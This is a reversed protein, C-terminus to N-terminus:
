RRIYRFLAYFTIIIGLIVIALVLYFLLDSASIGSTKQTTSTTTDDTLSIIKGTFQNKYKEEDDPNTIVRSCSDCDDDDDEDEGTDITFSVTETDEDGEDDEAYFTIHHTGESLDHLSYTFVYDDDTHMRKVTGEDLRFTVKEAEKNTEVEIELDKDDYEKNDEPSIVTIELNDENLNRVKISFTQSDSSLGDSVRVEVPYSKDQSVEPATGSILGTTPNISLWPLATPMSYTLTDGDADTADVDYSYYSGENVQTKPTSTIVPAYNTHTLDKVTVSYTQMDQYTGDSVIVQVTSSTDEDVYPATGSILGTASNISLWEPKQTLSYTLIDGDEDTAIVQYSYYAGENVSTKPTSTIDPAHNDCSVPNVILTLCKTQKGQAADSYEIRVHFTGATKYMSQTVQYIPNIVVYGAGASDPIQENIFTYLVNNNSDLLQAKINLPPNVSTSYIDFEATEGNNITISPLSNQWSTELVVAASACSFLLISLMLLSLIKFNM